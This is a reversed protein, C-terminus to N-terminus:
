QSCHSTVACFINEFIFDKISSYFKGDSVNFEVGKDSKILMGNELRAEYKV